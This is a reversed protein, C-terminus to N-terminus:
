FCHIENSPRYKLQIVECWMSVEGTSRCHIPAMLILTWVASLFVDTLAKHLIFNTIFLDMLINKVKLGRDMIKSEEIFFEVHKFWSLFICLDLVM